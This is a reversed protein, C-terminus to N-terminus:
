PTFELPDLEVWPITLEPYFYNPELLMGVLGRPLVALVALDARDEDAILWFPRREAIRALHWEGQEADDLTAFQFRMTGQRRTAAKGAGRWGLNSETEEVILESMGAPTHPRRPEGPAYSLGIWLGPVSPKLGAGMAVYYARWDYGARPDYRKLWAGSPTLVGFQDTLVGAGTAVPLNGIFANQVNGTGFDDDSVQARFSKGAFNHPQDLVVMDAVRSTEARAKNWADANLTNPVWADFSSRRGAAVAATNDSNENSSLTHAAYIRPNFFNDVLLRAKGM